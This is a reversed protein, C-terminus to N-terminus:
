AVETGAAPGQRVAAEPGGPPLAIFVTTGQGLQSEATIRGGHARILGHAVSLGLGVQAGTRARPRRFFPDFIYPLISPEIGVGTDAVEVWVGGSEQPRTRLTLHGTEGTSMAQYANRIVNVLAEELQEMNGATVLPAHWYERTVKVDQSPALMAVQSLAGELLAHVDLPQSQRQERSAFAALDRILGACRTAQQEIVRLGRQIEPATPKSRLIMAEGLIATLPNNLEHAVGGVLRSLANLKETRVTIDRERVLEATREELKRELEAYMARSHREFEARQEREARLAAQLVGARRALWWGLCTSALAGLAVLALGPPPPSAAAYALIPLTALLSFAVVIARCRMM